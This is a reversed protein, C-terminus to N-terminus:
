PRIICENLTLRVGCPTRPNFNQPWCWFSSHCPTAGWVPHTSQFPWSSTSRKTLAADCGVRPAHISIRCSQSFQCSIHRTAGWVPHTSQFRRYLTCSPLIRRRVGCPTRPNFDVAPGPSRQPPSTAGWVPHTSQFLAGDGSGHQIELRVGCPTRPNFNKTRIPWRRSRATDCGVRPAHISILLCPQLGDEAKTAGWVPHTSQFKAPPSGMLSASNDCGVRPAHISIGAHNHSNARYTTAGWM